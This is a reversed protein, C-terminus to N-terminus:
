DIFFTKVQLIYNKFRIVLRDGLKWKGDLRLTNGDWPTFLEIIELIIKQIFILYM